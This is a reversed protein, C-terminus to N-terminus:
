FSVEGTQGSSSMWCHIFLNIYCQGCGSNFGNWARVFEEEGLHFFFLSNKVFRFKIYWGKWSVVQFSFRMISWEGLRPVLVWLHLMPWKVQRCSKTRPTRSTKSPHAFLSFHSSRSVWILTKKTCTYFCFVRLTLTYWRVFLFCM